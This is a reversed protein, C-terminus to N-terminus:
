GSLGSRLACGGCRGAPRDIQTEPGCGSLQDWRLRAGMIFLINKVTM